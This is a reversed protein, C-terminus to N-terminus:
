FNNICFGVLTKLMADSPNHCWSFKPNSKLQTCLVRVNFQSPAQSSTYRKKYEIFFKELRKKSSRHFKVPKTVSVPNSDPLHRGAFIKAIILDEQALSLEIAGQVRNAGNAFAQDAGKAAGTCCIHGDIAMLVAIDSMVQLVNTPTERSGIGAYRM